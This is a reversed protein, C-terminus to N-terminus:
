LAYLSMGYGYAVGAMQSFVIWGCVHWGDPQICYTFNGSVHVPLTSQSVERECLRIYKWRWTTVDRATCVIVYPPLM